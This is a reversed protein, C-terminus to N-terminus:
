NSLGGLHWRRRCRYLLLLRSTSPRQRNLRIGFGPDRCESIRNSFRHLRSKLVISLPKTLPSMYIHTHTHTHTFSRVFSHHYSAFLYTLTDLICRLSLCTTSFLGSSISDLHTKFLELTKERWIKCNVVNELTPYMKSSTSRIFGTGFRTDTRWQVIVIAGRLAKEWLRSGRCADSDQWEHSTGECREVREDATAAASHMFSITTTVINDDASSAYRDSRAPCTWDIMRPHSLSFPCYDCQTKRAVLRILHYLEEWCYM